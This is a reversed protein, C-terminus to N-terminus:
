DAALGGASPSIARRLPDENVPVPTTSPGLVTVVAGNSRDLRCATVPDARDGVNGVPFMEILGDDVARNILERKLRPDDTGCNHGALVKNVLYRVGVFPLRQELEDILKVFPCWDYSAYEIEPGLIPTPHGPRGARAPRLAPEAWGRGVGSPFGAGGQFGAGSSYTPAYSPAAFPRSSELRSTEHRSADAPEPSRDRAQAPIGPAGALVDELAVFRDAEGRLEEDAAALCSIVTVESGDARLAQVLPLLTADGTVLLFAEPEDGAFLAQLADVALQIHSRDEGQASAPVLVPSLRASTVDRAATGLRSWDAYARALTVRGVQGAYRVLARAVEGLAHAGWRTAEAPAAAAQAAVHPAAAQASGYPGSLALGGGHPAATGGVAAETAVPAASTGLGARLHAVDVLLAVHARAESM